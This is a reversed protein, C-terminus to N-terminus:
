TKSSRARMQKLVVSRELLRGQQRFQVSRGLITQIRETLSLALFQEATLWVQRGDREVTVSDFPLEIM